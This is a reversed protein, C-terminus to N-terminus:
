SAVINRESGSLTLITPSLNYTPSIDSVVYRRAIYNVSLRAVEHTSQRLRLAQVEQFV